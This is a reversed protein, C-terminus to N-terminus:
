RLRKKCRRVIGPWCRRCDRTTLSRRTSISVWSRTTSMTINRRSRSMLPVEQGNALVARSGGARKWAEIKAQRDAKHQEDFKKQLEAKKKPDRTAAIQAPLGAESMPLWNSSQLMINADDDPMGMICGMADIKYVTGEINVDTNRKHELTTIIDM